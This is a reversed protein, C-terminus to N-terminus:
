SSACGTGGNGGYSGEAAKSLKLAKYTVSGRSLWASGIGRAAEDMDTRDICDACDCRICCYLYALM